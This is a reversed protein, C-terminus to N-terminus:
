LLVIQPPKFLGRRIGRGITRNTGPDLPKTRCQCSLRPTNILKYLGWNEILVQNEVRSFGENTGCDEKLAKGEELVM